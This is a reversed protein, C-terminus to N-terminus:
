IRNEWEDRISDKQTSNLDSFNPPEAHYVWDGPPMPAELKDFLRDLTAELGMDVATNIEELTPGITTRMLLHSAEEFNFDEKTPPFSGGHALTILKSGENVKEAIWMKKLYDSWHSNATIIIDGFIIITELTIRENGKVEVKDVIEAYSKASFFLFFRGITQISKATGLSKSGSTM